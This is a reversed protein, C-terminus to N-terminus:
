MLEENKAMEDLSKAIKKLMLLNPYNPDLQLFKKLNDHENNKKRIGRAQLMDFFDQSNVIEVVNQKTKTKVM